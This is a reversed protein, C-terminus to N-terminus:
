LIRSNPLHFSPSSLLSLLLSQINIESLLVPTCNKSGIAPPECGDAGPSKIGGEVEKSVVTMYTYM